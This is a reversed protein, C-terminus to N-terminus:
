KRKTGAREHLARGHVEYHRPLHLQRRGDSGDGVVGHAVVLEEVAVVAVAVAVVDIAVVVAVVAPLLLVTVPRGGIVVAEFQLLPVPLRGVGWRSSERWLGLVVVSHKANPLANLRPAVGEGRGWSM